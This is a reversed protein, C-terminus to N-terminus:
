EVVLRDALAQCDANMVASLSLDAPADPLAQRLHATAVEHCEAATWDTYILSVRARARVLVDSARLAEDRVAAVVVFAPSDTLDLWGFLDGVQDMQSADLPPEPDVVYVIRRHGLAEVLLTLEQILGQIGILTDGEGFFNTNTPVSQYGERLEAPLGLVFRQYRRAGGQRELLARLFERPFVDLGAALAPQAKLTEAITEAAVALLQTLHSPDHPHWATRAGPWREPPYRLVLANNAERAAWVTLAVSKGSGPPGALLGWHYLGRLQRDAAGEVYCDLWWQRGQEDSRQEPRFPWDLYGSTNM